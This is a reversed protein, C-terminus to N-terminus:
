DHIRYMLKSLFAIALRELQRMAIPQLMQSFSPRLVRDNLRIGIPERHGGPLEDWLFYGGQRARLEQILWNVDCRDSTDNQNGAINDQQFSVLATFNFLRSECILRQTERRTPTAGLHYRDLLDALASIPLADRTDSIDPALLLSPQNMIKGAAELLAIYCRIFLNSSNQSFPFFPCNM